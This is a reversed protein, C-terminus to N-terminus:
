PKQSLSPNRYTQPTLGKFTYVVAALALLSHAVDPKAMYYVHDAPTPLLVVGTSALAAGILTKKSRRGDWILAAAFAAKAEWALWSPVAYFESYGPPYSLYVAGEILLFYSLVGLASVSLPLLILSRDKLVAAGAIGAAVYQWQLGRNLEPWLGALVAPAIFLVGRSRQDMVLTSTAALSMATIVTLLGRFVTAYAVSLLYSLVGLPKRIELAALGFAGILYPSPRLLVFPVAAVLAAFTAAERRLFALAWPAFAVLYELVPARLGAERLAISALMAAQLVMLGFLGTAFIRPDFSRRSM